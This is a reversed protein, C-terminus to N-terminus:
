PAYAVRVPEVDIQWERSGLANLQLPKPLQNLDHRLKATVVYKEGKQLLKREVVRTSSLRSIQRVAAELTPLNQTYLGSTLRWSRILPVYALRFNDTRSAVSENLVLRERVVEIERVFYLAVGRALADELTQTLSVNFDVTLLLAEEDVSVEPPRPASPQASVMPAVFACWSVLLASVIACLPRLWVGTM